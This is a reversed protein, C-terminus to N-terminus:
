HTPSTYLIYARINYLFRAVGWVGSVGSKLNGLFDRYMDNGCNWGFWKEKLPLFKDKQVSNQKAMEKAFVESAKLEM